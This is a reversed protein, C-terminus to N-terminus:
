FRIICLPYGSPIGAFKEFAKNCVYHGHSDIWDPVHFLHPSKGKIVESIGLGGKIFSTKLNHLMLQDLGHHFFIINELRRFTPIITCHQAM